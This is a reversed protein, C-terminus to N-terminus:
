CMILNHIVGMLIPFFKALYVNARSNNYVNSNINAIDTEYNAEYKKNLDNSLM